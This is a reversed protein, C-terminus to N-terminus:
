YFVFCTQYTETESLLWICDVYDGYLVQTATTSRFQSHDYVWGNQCPVQVNTQNSHGLDAQSAFVRCSSLTGDAELPIRLALTEPDALSMSLGGEGHSSDGLDCHHPPVASIFNHLLFHLPLIVRPLCLLHLVLFQFKSFGGVDDLIEEFRM